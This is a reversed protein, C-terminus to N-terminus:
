DDNNYFNCFLEACKYITFCIIATMVVTEM